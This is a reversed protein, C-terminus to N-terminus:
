YRLLVKRRHVYQYEEHSADLIDNEFEGYRSEFPVGGMSIGAAVDLGNELIDKKEERTAYAVAVEYFNSYSKARRALTAAPPDRSNLVDEFLELIPETQDPL